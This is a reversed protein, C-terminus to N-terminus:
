NPGECETCCTYSAGGSCKYVTCIRAGAGEPCIEVYDDVVTCSLSSPPCVWGSASQPQAASLAIALLIIALVYLKRM